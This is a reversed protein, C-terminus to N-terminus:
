EFPEDDGSSTRRLWFYMGATAGSALAVIVFPLNPRKSEVDIAPVASKAKRKAVRKGISWVLWGVMANRRNFIGM